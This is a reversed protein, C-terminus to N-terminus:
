FSLVIQILFLTFPLVVLPHFFLFKLFFRVFILPFKFVPKANEHLIKQNFLPFCFSQVFNLSIDPSSKQAFNTHKRILKFELNQKIMRNM